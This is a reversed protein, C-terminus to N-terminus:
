RKWLRRHYATLQQRSAGAAEAQGEPDALCRQMIGTQERCLVDHGPMYERMLFLALKVLRFPGIVQPPRGPLAAVAVARLQRVAEVIDPLGSSTAFVITYYWGFLHNGDCGHADSAGVVPLAPLLKVLGPKSFVLMELIAAAMGFNADIQFPPAAGDGLTLGMQRWDNHYTWLNPGISGRILLELCALARDGQGLRAYSNAMHAMSWGSQSTLGVTLRKEVAIRGAEVLEPASEATLETGPFIPYLHSQHRHAYHDDFAPHLWERLAGDENAAYAPLRELMARWRAVGEPEIGLWECADCLNTLVERCVAVDMTANITVLSNGNGPRNEPSLSPIFMLEGHDGEVLFDEYFRAVERLWPVARRRLFVEDGTFLYYDYFHQAIWGAAATWYGYNEPTVTGQTTMALPAQIGRCGYNNRANERFDDIFSEFYDFFPLMTEPLAGPLAPWYCMQVNEDTHIDCNWAPAYDGNWLGQLNAPRGGERSCSILLYRGYNFLTQILAPPAEGDYAALLLEENSDGTASSPPSHGEEGAKDHAQDSGQGLSLSVRNFLGAHAAAHEQFAGEFSEGAGALEALLRPVAAAPAENCYLRVRVVVEDADRVALADDAATVKGGTVAVHAVAGFHLAGAYTGRFLLTRHEGSVERASEFDMEGSFAHYREVQESVTEGLALRGGVRGPTNGRVRLFVTDSLRSAFLERTYAARDDRWAVWARGTEFDIGRRYTRFPGETRTDFFLSCCPQYPAVSGPEGGGAKLREEYVARGLQAAERCQGAMILKRMDALRDSVDRSEIRPTPYYLADHNLLITERQINGYILAGVVGSGVPLGDQWRTAPYRMTMGRM